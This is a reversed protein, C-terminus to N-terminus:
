LQSYMLNAYEGKLELLETHTGQEIIRGQSMVVINDAHRITSLRHAVIVVTKGQYFDELQSLIDKENKTDLANTAEDLFLFDPDKYICRALLIRQKQGQSLGMGDDGIKTNCGLPLRGVLDQLNAMGLAKELRESDIEASGLAINRALTDSFIYSDQMVTGVHSRWHSIKIEDLPVSAVTVKGSRPHYFGQLMKVLTTKGCGSQGVIATVKGQPIVLSIDHLVDDREAGTYSYTVNQLIIDGQLNETVNEREKIQIEDKQDYLDGLRELSIKADQYNQAFGLFASIPAAVQGIIFSLSVLMGLTMEGSVVMRASLYSIAVNTATAILISGSSQIQGIALARMSIKYLRAQIRAWEWRKQREINNAKIEQMGQVFQVLNNQLQASQEFVKNDIERRYKM